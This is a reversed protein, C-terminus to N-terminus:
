TVTFDAIQDVSPVERLKIPGTVEKSESIDVAAQAAQKRETSYIFTRHGKWRYEILYIM